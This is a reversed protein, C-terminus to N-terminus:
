ASFNIPTEGHASGTPEGILGTGNVEEANGGRRSRATCNLSSWSLSRPIWHVGGYWKRGNAIATSAFLMSVKAVLDADVDPVAELQKLVAQSEGTLSAQEARLTATKLGLIRCDAPVRDGVHLEIIDGPM